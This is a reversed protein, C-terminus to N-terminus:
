AVSKPEVGPIGLSSSTANLAGSETHSVFRAAIVNKGAKVLRGPVQYSRPCTYLEPPEKGISGVKEGNFYVTDYQESLYGLHLQFPKGAASEPIEVTKRVWFVGGHNAGRASKL